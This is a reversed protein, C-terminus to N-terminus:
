QDSKRVCIGAGEETGKEINKEKQLLRFFITYSKWGFTLTEVCKRGSFGEQKRM